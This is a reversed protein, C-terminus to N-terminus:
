NLLKNNKIKHADFLIHHNGCLGLGNKISDSSQPATVPYIHAAQILSWDIGCMACQGQYAKLVKGRFAADRAVRKVAVIARERVVEDDTENFGTDIIASVINELPASVKKLLVM